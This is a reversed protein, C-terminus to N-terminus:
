WGGSAGGGGFSGGGGSFGGGGSSRFGGGGGGFFGGSSRRTWGGGKGAATSINKCPSLMILVIIILVLVFFFGCGFGSGKSKDQKELAQLSSPDGAVVQAMTEFASKIGGYYNGARFEPVIQQRIITGCKSDPLVGELGYGVEIRVARDNLSVLLIVGNDTDKQGIKWKEAVRMSYEELNEGELSKLTLLVLQATTKTETAALFAELEAKEGSTLMAAYDNVRGVLQPVDLASLPTGAGAALLGALGLGLAALCWAFRRKLMPRSWCRDTPFSM